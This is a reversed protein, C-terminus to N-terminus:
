ALPDGMRLQPTQDDILNSVARIYERDWLTFQERAEDYAALFTLARWAVADHFQAPFIPEDSNATLEFPTRRFNIKLRYEEDPVPHLAIAKAPTISLWQPRGTIVTGRLFQRQMADYPMFQVPQENTVGLAVSYCSGVDEGFEQNINWNSFIDADGSLLAASTHERTSALIQMLGSKQLFLFDPRLNQIDRNARAVWRVIQGLRGTQGVVSEPQTYGGPVTGSDESVQQCLNLFTTM